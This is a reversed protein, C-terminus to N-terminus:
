RDYRGSRIRYTFLCVYYILLVVDTSVIIVAFYEAM